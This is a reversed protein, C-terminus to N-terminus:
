AMTLEDSRRRALPQLVASFLHIIKPFGCIELKKYASSAIETILSVLALLITVGTLILPDKASVGFLQSSILRTLALAAMGGLGVGVLTLVMGQNLVMMILRPTSTGLAIRIGIERQRQSVSYAIVGYIGISALALAV